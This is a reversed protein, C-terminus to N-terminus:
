VLKIIEWYAKSFNNLSKRVNKVYNIYKGPTINLQFFVNAHSMVSKAGVIYIEKETILVSLM